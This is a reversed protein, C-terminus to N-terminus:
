YRDRAPTNQWNYRPRIEGGWLAYSPFPYIPQIYPEAIVRHEGEFQVGDYIDLWAFKDNQWCKAFVVEDTNCSTDYITFTYLKGDIIFRKVEDTPKM